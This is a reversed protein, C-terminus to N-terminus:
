STSPTVSVVCFEVKNFMEHLRGAGAIREIDWFELFFMKDKKIIDARDIEYIFSTLAPTSHNEFRSQRSM